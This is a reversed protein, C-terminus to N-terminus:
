EKVEQFIHKFDEEMYATINGDADRVFWDGIKIFDQTYSGTTSYAYFGKQNKYGIFEIDLEKLGLFGDSNAVGTFQYAEYTQTPKKTVLM